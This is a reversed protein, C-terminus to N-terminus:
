TILSKVLLNCYFCILSNTVNSVHPLYVFSQRIFVVRTTKLDCSTAVHSKQICGSGWFTPVTHLVYICVSCILWQAFVQQGINLQFIGFWWWDIWWVHFLEVFVVLKGLHVHLKQVSLICFSDCTAKTKIPSISLIQSSILLVQPVDSGHTFVTKM